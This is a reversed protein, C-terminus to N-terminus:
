GTRCPQNLLRNPSVGRARLGMIRGAGRYLANSLIVAPRNRSLGHRIQGIPVAAGGADKPLEFARRGPLVYDGTASVSVLEAM